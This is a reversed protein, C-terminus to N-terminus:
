YIIGWGRGGNRDMIGRGGGIVNLLSGLRERNGNWEMM